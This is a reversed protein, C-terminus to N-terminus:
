CTLKEEDNARDFDYDDHIISKKIFQVTEAESFSEEVIKELRHHSRHSADYWQRMDDITFDSTHERMKHRKATESFSVDFYFMYSPGDHKSIIRELVNEYSRVSLIGELIVDYGCQLASVCNQEIMEHIVESNPKSGGGAPNFIFRYYDQQILTTKVTAENFLRCAVTSKGAGSPGRLIIFRNNNSM